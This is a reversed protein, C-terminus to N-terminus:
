IPNPSTAENSSPVIYTEEKSKTQKTYNDSTRAIVSELSGLDQYELWSRTPSLEEEATTISVERESPEEGELRQLIEHISPGESPLETM